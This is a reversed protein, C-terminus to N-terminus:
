TWNEIELEWRTQAHNRREYQRFRQFLGYHIRQNLGPTQAPDEVVLVPRTEGRDLALAYLTDVEGETLDGFTWSYAAKRVGEVVMFGGSSLPTIQGTDIPRRGSGWEKNYQPVFAKGAMLAAKGAPQTLTLRIYRVNATNGAWLAHAKAPSLGAADPARLPGEAKLTLATYNAEGGTITWRSSTVANHIHGLYVTDVACVSGLDINIEVSGTASDVWVEKPDPSLLNSGGSGRSVSLAAITQPALILINAM